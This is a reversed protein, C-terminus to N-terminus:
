AIPERCNPHGCSETKLAWVTEIPIDLQRRMCWCLCPVRDGDTPIRIEHVQGKPM